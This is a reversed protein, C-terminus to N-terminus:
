KALTRFEDGLEFLGPLSERDTIEVLDGRM